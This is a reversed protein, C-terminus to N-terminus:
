FFAKIRLKKNEYLCDLHLKIGNRELPYERYSYTTEQKHEPPDSSGAKKDYIPDDTNVNINVTGCASVFLTFLTLLVVFFRKQNKMKREGDTQLRSKLVM